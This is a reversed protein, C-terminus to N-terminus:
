RFEPYYRAFEELLYALRARRNKGANAACINVGSGKYNGQEDIIPDERCVYGMFGTERLGHRKLAALYQSRSMDKM